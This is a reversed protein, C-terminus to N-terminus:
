KCRYIQVLGKTNTVVFKTSSENFTIAFPDKIKDRNSLVVENFRGGPSLRQVESRDSESVYVNGQKDVAIGAEGTVAYRYSITGNLKICSVMGMTRYIISGDNPNYDLSSVYNSDDVLDSLVIRRINEGNSKFMKIEKRKGVIVDDGTTTIGFCDEGVQITKDLALTNTNVFQVYSKYPMTVIAKNTGSLVSIGYPNGPVSLTKKYTLDQENIKFVYINNTHTQCDCLLLKNDATVAVDTILKGIQLQKRIKQKFTLTSTVNVPQVQAQQLKVPSYQTASATRVEEVSGICEIDIDSKKKLKFDTKKYSLTMDQVRKIIDDVGKGQERLTLYLQNNSGHEKLFELEQKKEQVIDYLKLIESNEKGYLDLIKKKANSLETKLKEELTNIQKILLTKWKSIEELMAIEGSEIEDVFGHRDQKLNDLTKVINQWESLTDELLSSQKIHKSAVELPTVDKCSQHDSPICVRCCVTDHQTCYFDLPVDQHVECFSKAIPIQSRLISTLDMLHHSKTAKFKKHYEVCAQCLNEECDSCFNIAAISTGEDSCPDCYSNSAM